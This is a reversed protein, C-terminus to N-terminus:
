PKEIINRIARLEDATYKSLDLQTNIKEGQTTIDTSQKAKGHARNMMTEFIDFGKGSLMVKAVTRLPLPLKEDKVIKKLDAETCNFLSEYLDVIDKPKVPELGMERLEKVVSSVTKRNQGTRNINQPNNQFGNTNDKGSLIKKAM